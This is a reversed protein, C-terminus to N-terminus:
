TGIADIAALYRADGVGIQSWVQRSQGGKHDYQEDAEYLTVITNRFCHETSNFAAGDSGDHKALLQFLDQALADFPDVDYISCSFCEGCFVGIFSATDDIYEVQIANEDGFFDTRPKARALEMGLEAMAGQVAARPMGFRIPGVGDGPAIILHPKTGESPQSMPPMSGSSPRELWGPM